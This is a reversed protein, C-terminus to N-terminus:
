SQCNLSPDQKLLGQYVNVVLNHLHDNEGNTASNITAAIIVQNCPIYIYMSRFGLTEGEYFWIRGLGERYSQIVGLGFGGPDGKTVEKIKKGTKTSVLSTLATRQQTNLFSRDIFLARVWHVIDVANSVVAGAAGAWSLNNNYIDVGVLEPNDYQNYGYGHVLAQEKAIKLDPLPYYTYKLNLPKIIDKLILAQLSQGTKDEVALGTLLYGTNSYYYGGKLPPNFQAKPYVINILEKAKWHYALDKTDTYNFTPSDSYNPLGSSMNLLKEVSISGWKQYEPFFEGVTSTLTIGDDKSKLVIAALYSKTISGIQFLSNEDVKQSNPQHSENGIYVSEIPKNKIGVALGVGSFYEADKYQNYYQQINENLIHQTSKTNVVDNAYSVGIMSLVGISLILKLNIM